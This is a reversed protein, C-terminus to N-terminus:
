ILKTLIMHSGSLLLVVSINNVAPAWNVFVTDTSILVWYGSFALQSSSDAGGGADWSVTVNSNSSQLAMTQGVNATSLSNTGSYVVAGGRNASNNAGIGVAFGSTTATYNLVGEVRYTGAPVILSLDPDATPTVTSARSTNFSKVAVYPVASAATNIPDSDDQLQGFQDYLQSRYTISSDLYITPFRGMADSVLDLPPFQNNFFADAYVPAPTLTGTYYFNLTAGPMPQGNSDLPLSRPNYYVFSQVQSM